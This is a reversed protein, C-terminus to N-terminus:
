AKVPKAVRVEIWNLKAQEIFILYDSWALGFKWCNFAVPKPNAKIWQCVSQM